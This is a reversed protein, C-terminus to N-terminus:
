LRLLSINLFETFITYLKEWDIDIEYNLLFEPINGLLLNWNGLFDRNSTRAFLSNHLIGLYNDQIDNKDYIAYFDVFPLCSYWGDTYKSIEDFGIKNEVIYHLDDKHIYGREFPSYEEDSDGESGLYKIGRAELETVYQNDPSLISYGYYEIGDLVMNKYVSKM